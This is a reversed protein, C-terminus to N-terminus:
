LQWGQANLKEKCNECFGQTESSLDKANYDRLYCTNNSCHRLGFTHALEHLVIKEFNRKDKLRYTSAICAAGPSYGLGIVGFDEHGDKTTSIDYKTIGVYVEGTKARKKLWVLLSDARYRNRSSRYAQTPMDVPKQIIVGPLVKSIQYYLGMYFGKNITGLPQIIIKKQNKAYDTKAPTNKKPTLINKQDCSFMILFTALYYIYNM